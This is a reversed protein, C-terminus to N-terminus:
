CWHMCRFGPAVNAQQWPGEEAGSDLRDAPRQREAVQAAVQAAVCVSERKTETERDVAATEGDELLRGRSTAHWPLMGGSL